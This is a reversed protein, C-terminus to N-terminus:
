QCYRSIYVGDNGKLMLVTVTFTLWSVKAATGQEEEGGDGVTRAPYTQLVSTDTLMEAASKM